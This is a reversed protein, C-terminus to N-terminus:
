YEKRQLVAVSMWMLISTLVLSGAVPAWPMAATIPYCNLSMGRLPSVRAVWDFKAQLLFVAVWFFCAGMFQWM